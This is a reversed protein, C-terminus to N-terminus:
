GETEGAKIKRELEAVEGRFAEIEKQLVALNQQSSDRAAQVKILEQKQAPTPHFDGRRGAERHATDWRSFYAAKETDLKFMKETEAQFADEKQQLIMRITPLRTQARTRDSARTLKDLLTNFESESCDSAIHGQFVISRHDDLQHQFSVGIAPVAQKETM